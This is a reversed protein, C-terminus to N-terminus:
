LMFKTSNANDKYMRTRIVGVILLSWYFVCCMQVILYLYNKNAWAFVLCEKFLTTNCYHIIQRECMYVCLCLCSMWVCVCVCVRARACVFVCVCRLYWMVIVSTNNYRKLSSSPDTWVLETEESCLSTSDCVADVLLTSHTITYDYYKCM